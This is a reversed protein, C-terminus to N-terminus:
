CRRIESADMHGDRNFDGPPLSTNTVSLVGTTNLQSANWSLANSLAPLAL